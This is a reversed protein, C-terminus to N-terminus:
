LSPTSIARSASLEPPARFAQSPNTLTLRSSVGPLALTSSSPPSAALPPMTGAQNCGFFSEFFSLLSFDWPSFHDLHILVLHHLPEIYYSRKSASGLTIVHNPFFPKISRHLAHFVRDTPEPIGTSHEIERHCVPISILNQTELRELGTM